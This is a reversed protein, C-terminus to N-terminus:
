EDKSLYEILRVSNYYRSSHQHYGQMTSSAPEAEGREQRGPDGCADSGVLTHPPGRLSEDMEETQGPFNRLCDRCNDLASALIM